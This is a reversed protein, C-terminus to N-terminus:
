CIWEYIDLQNRWCDGSACGGSDCGISHHAEPDSGTPGGYNGTGGDGHCRCDYAPDDQTSYKWKGAVVESTPDSVSCGSDSYAGGEWSLNCGCWEHWSGETCRVVRGVHTKCGDEVVVTAPGCATEDAYLTTHNEDTYIEKLTYEADFWFGDESVEWHFPGFCEDTTIAVNATGNPDITDDSEEEDWGWTDDYVDEAEECFELESPEGTNDDDCSDVLFDYLVGEDTFLPYKSVRYFSSDCLLTRCEHVFSYDEVPDEISPLITWDNKPPEWVQFYFPPSYAAAGIYFIAYGNCNFDNTEIVITDDVSVEAILGDVTIKDSSGGADYATISMEAANIITVRGTGETTLSDGAVLTLTGESVGGSAITYLGDNVGSLTIVRIHMNEVFGADVFGNNSDNITAPSGSSFSISTSFKVYAEGDQNQWHVTGDVLSNEYTPLNSVSIDNGDISLVYRSIMKYDSCKALTLTLPPLSGSGEHFVFDTQGCSDEVDVVLVNDETGHVRNRRSNTEAYDLTFGDGVSNWSFPPCGGDLFVVNEGPFPGLEDGSTQISFTPPDDCCSAADCYPVDITVELGNADTVTVTTDQGEGAASEITNYRVATEASSFTAWENNSAWTFNPCGGEVYLVASDSRGISCVNLPSSIFYHGAEDGCPYDQIMQENLPKGKGSRTMASPTGTRPVPDSESGGEPFMASPIVTRSVM